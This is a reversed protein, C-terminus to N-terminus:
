LNSSWGWYLSNIRGQSVNKSVLSSLFFPLFIREFPEYQGIFSMFCRQFNFFSGFEAHRGCSRFNNWNSPKFREEFLIYFLESEIMEDIFKQGFFLNM